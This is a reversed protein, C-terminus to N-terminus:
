GAFCRVSATCDKTSDRHGEGLSQLVARLQEVESLLAELDATIGEQVKKLDNELAEVLRM